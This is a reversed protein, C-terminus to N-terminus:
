LDIFTMEAENHQNVINFIGDAFKLGLIVTKLLRPQFYLFFFHFFIKHVIM